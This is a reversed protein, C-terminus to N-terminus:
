TMGEELDLVVDFGFNKVALNSNLDFRSFTHDNNDDNLVEINGCGSVAVAIEAVELITNQKKSSINFVGWAKRKYAQWAANVVDYAHIFNVKNKPGTVKILGGSSAINIYNQVLKDSSLGYGYISTPRLIVCKLGNISLHNFISEALIKTYGYFGGFGNVVKPDTEVIKSEHPNAYVVSGSLFIIPINRLKAWEALNLCSRINTDFVKQTQLNDYKSYSHELQAGFHFVASISGFIQDLEDFSKWEILDWVKRTIIKIPIKKSKLLSVMHSGTMGNAGTVAIKNM